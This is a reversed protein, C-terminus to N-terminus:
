NSEQWSVVRVLSSSVSAEVLIKKNFNDASALVNITRASGSSSVNIICSGDSLNLTTGNWNSNLQLQRLSEEVCGNALSLSQNGKQETYSMDADGLGLVSASFAMLLAAASVILVTLLAAVGRNDLQFITRKSINM